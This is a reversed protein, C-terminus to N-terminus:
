PLRYLTICVSHVERTPWINHFIDPPINCIYVDHSGSSTTYAVQQSDPSLVLNWPSHVHFSALLQRSDFAWLKVTDDNSASVLLTCDSSFALGVQLIIRTHGKFPAGITELRLSDFEYITIPYSDSDSDGDWFSFAAVITTDQTTWFVPTNLDSYLSVNSRLRSM